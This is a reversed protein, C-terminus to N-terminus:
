RNISMAMRRYQHRRGRIAVGYTFINEPLVMCENYGIDGLEHMDAGTMKAWLAIQRITAEDSGEQSTHIGVSALAGKEHILEVMESCREVTWGYHTGPAPIGIIDAGADILKEVEEKTILYKGSKGDIGMLGPGHPRNIHLIAEEGIENKISKIIPVIDEINGWTAVSLLDAGQNVIKRANEASAKIQGYSFTQGKDDKNPTCILLAAVPRGILERIEKLNYGKGLPVQIKRTDEDDKMDKSNLGPLIPDNMDYCNIPVIDAGFAAALEANSVYDVLNASRSRAYAMLIRGESKKIGRLLQKPKLKLIQQPTATLLREGAQEMMEEYNSKKM